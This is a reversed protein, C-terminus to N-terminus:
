RPPFVLLMLFAERRDVSAAVWLRISTRAVRILAAAGSAEVRRSPDYDASHREQQLDTISRAFARIEATFGGHPESSRYKAPLSLQALLHCFSSLGRHDISRYVLAYQSTARKGRGIVRDAAAILLTHFAAYYATSIARRLDAQRHPGGRTRVLLADAQDLLHEANLITLPTSNKSPPMISM